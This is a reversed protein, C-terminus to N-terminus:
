RRCSRQRQHRQRRGPRRRRHHQRHVRRPLRWGPQGRGDHWHQRHRHLQGRGRQGHRRSRLPVSRRLHGLLRQQRLRRYRSLTARVPRRAASSTTPTPSSSVRAVTPLQRSTGTADTGIYDGEVVDGGNTTLDIGDGGFRNIVLGKVTSNGGTIDLGVAGSGAQVGSLVILPTGNFNPQDAGQSTGDIIVPATIVPWASAPAIAWTGTANTYGSDSISIDFDINDTGANASNADLIAQRLSGAGSDATTTVTFASGGDAGIDVTGNWLRAQGRQDTSLLNLTIGPFDSTGADIAPSGPLLEMTQTPGGYDGLPTLLPDGQLCGYDVNTFSSLGSGDGILDYAGFFTSGYGSDIYLDSGPGSDAVITNYLTASGGYQTAIGGGQGAANGALTCDSLTLRGGEINDIGGGSGADFAVANDFLTSNSATLTGVNYIGGGGNYTVGGGAGAVNEALTSDNLKIGSANYIAGGRRTM